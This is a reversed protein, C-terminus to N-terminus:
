PRSKRSRGNGPSREAGIKNPARKQTARLEAAEEMWQVDASDMLLQHVHFFSKVAEPGAVNFAHQIRKLQANSLREILSLGTASAYTRKQRRDEEGPESVLYGQEILQRMPGRLNQHSVRMVTILQNVTIGPRQTAFFLIRHHVRGFGHAELPERADSTFCLNALTHATLCDVLRPETPRQNFPANTM